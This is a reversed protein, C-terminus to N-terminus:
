DALASHLARWDLGRPAREVVTQLLGLRAARLDPDEAMVLVEDFFTTLESVVGGAVQVWEPLTGGSLDPLEAVKAHLALEAPETLLSPDYAAPHGEPVIRTIRQTAEVLKAFGDRTRVAGIDRLVAEAKGPAAALPQVASALASPVGEDHLQQGFRGAVFERATEIAEASVELGQQRLQDAAAALGREVSIASLTPQSRLIGIVGLAARRLAFPDSSGTPKAGLAFMAMLLDFRDALALLAGARSTPLAGGATRPQEMEYLAAAVEPTEGAKLAYERAMYGALSSLEVVMQSALDFKALESARALTEGEAADLPVHEALAAAVDRIRDARDAMSGIREEFTLKAIGARLDALSAKLDAAYFFAADEYRARLVNENGRRVLDDDCDGNAMTVFYPMLAGAGDRVPLYRQHKRMVTTLIQEPLELYRAEFSGLIGHPAEVLNTIEGVLGAEAEVDVVGGVSAALAHAQAVVSERRAAPDVIFDREALKPLLVDANEVEVLPGAETREAYTTRGSRLGSVTVPVVTDGWLAVIWRIPRSYALEPDGWRMNKDARLGSVVSAIISGLVELVGRGTEEVRVAVHEVGDFEARVLESVEVKQGRAFGEAAKTPAGGPGFAAAVKPGKRLTEADPEHVGVGDVLAIVRRPTGHVTVAGHPLRTAALRETLGARVQEIAQEVVHPPLEEVGIELALRRTVDPALGALEAAYSQAKVEVGRFPPMVARGATPPLPAELLPFGLEERREVWLRSVERALRRMTGFAKARETTSIAGRADLVNFAHSSKLVYTHAPVPLRADVMRQAEATYREFLERNTQVDAVDLYYRSMEYETQGFAEGYSIGPAYVMDKFHTVGQLAMVIREIGYTLEVAIPDLNQGGVQQFYTFQTIEMGDLWVEWGLGWAGIAPQAWNDEVFRVDHASLDIGLAELSELYLEQPNGPDPKLIVQFQTHTQLRNPNEGYRSDDPRVSPEVYAVRWPEPGLVRLITAPNMTGAGVETNFPQVVMCGRDTWFQQLTLLADQVTLTTTDPV